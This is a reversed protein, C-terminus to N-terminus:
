IVTLATDKAPKGAADGDKKKFCAKKTVFMGVLVVVLILIVLVAVGIGVGVGVNSKAPSTSPSQASTSSTSGSSGTATTNTPSSTATTTAPSPPPPSPPANPDVCAACTPPNHAPSQFNANLSLYNNGGSAAGILVDRKNDANLDTIRIAYGGSFGQALATSTPFSGATTQIRLAAGTSTIVVLDNIGDGSVDGVDFSATNAAAAIVVPAGFTQTGRSYIMMSVGTSVCWVLDPVCDNNMDVLKLELVTAGPSTILTPIGPGWLSASVNRYLTIAGNVAVAVQVKCNGDLDAAAVQILGSGGCNTCVLSRLGNVFGSVGRYPYVYVTGSNGRNGIVIDVFGDNDFDAFQADDIASDTTIGTLSYGVLAGRFFVAGAQPAPATVLTVADTIGDKDVDFALVGSGATSSTVLRDYSQGLGFFPGLGTTRTNTILSNNVVAISNSATASALSVLPSLITGGHFAGAALGNISGTMGTATPLITDQLHSLTAVPLSMRNPDIFTSITNGQIYVIDARGDGTIDGGRSIAPTNVTSFAISNIDQSPYFVPGNTDANIWYLIRQSQFVTSSGVASIVLDLRGDGDLDALDATRPGPLAMVFVQTFVGGGQNMFVCVNSYFDSAAAVDTLGANNINGVSISRAPYNQTVNLRTTYTTAASGLLYAITGARESIVIDKYIDGTLEAVYTASAQDFVPGSVKTGAGTFFNGSGTNLNFYASGGPFAEVAVVDNRGDNNLDAVAMSQVNFVGTIVTLASGFSTGSSSPFWVIADTPNTTQTVVDIFGDLNIAGAAVGQASNSTIVTPAGFTGSGSNLYFSLRGAVVANDVTFIDLGGGNNIDALLLQNPTTATGVTAITGTPPPAMAAAALLLVVVAVTLRPMESSHPIGM